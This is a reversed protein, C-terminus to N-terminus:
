TITGIPGGQDLAKLAEDLQEDVKRATRYAINFLDELTQYGKEGTDLTLSEVISGRQNILSLSYERFLDVCRISFTQRPISVIFQNSDVTERWNVQGNRTLELLKEAIAFMRQDAMLPGGSHPSNYNSLQKM